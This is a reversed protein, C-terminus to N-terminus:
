SYVLKWFHVERFFNIRLIDKDSKRGEPHTHSEKYIPASPSAMKKYWGQCHQTKWILMPNLKRNFYWILVSAIVSWLHLARHIKVFGPNPLWGSLSCCCQWCEPLGVHMRWTRDGFIGHDGTIQKMPKEFNINISDCLM